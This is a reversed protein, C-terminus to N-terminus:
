CYYCIQDAHPLGWAPAIASICRAIAPEQSKLTTKTLFSLRMPTTQITHFLYVTGIPENSIM